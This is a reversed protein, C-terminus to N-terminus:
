LPVDVSSGAMMGDPLSVTRPVTDQATVEITISRQKRSPDSVTMRRLNVGDMEVLLMCPGSVKLTMGKAITVTGPNYFVAQIIGKGDHRVAQLAPTNSLIRLKRGSFSESVGAKAGPVVMYAYGASAPKIGHDIRLTFVQKEVTEETAWDHHNIRRWNGKAPAASVHVDTMVPFVYAVGDHTIGSVRILSSEGNGLKRNNKETIVQVDGYLNRQEITTFVPYAADSRIGAGLCVYEDDFFFWAKRASLPDHPSRFDEAAAGVRGNTVGGVFDSIGKKAIEKWHPLAPKQVITAGPIKQWDWVPFIGDYEKGSINLFNSGDAFHHHLLGEENHPFEMSYQRSSHMRVSAFWGPRQHTYYESQWFFRSWALDPTVENKRIRVLEELEKKRYSSVRALNAPPEPSAKREEAKRSMDRNRAGVDPFKGFAMSKSIGDLYYDTLLKTSAEPFSFGTGAIRSAWYAFTQAYGTGYTLTSIVNDTRHHFSMDSQLGRGDSVKIEKTMIKVVSDLLAIDRMFLAQKGVMGAIQILDGGPRAGFGDFRAGATIKLGGKRQVPSLEEDLILLTNIMSGPTGMENWWWNQCQYDKEIWHDLALMAAKKIAPDGFLPSGPKRFARSLHQMRELHFRHQFGTRSTDTYNIDAWSGDPLQSTAYRNAEAKGVSPALQDAIIRKRITELDNASQGRINGGVFGTLLIMLALRFAIPLASAIKINM